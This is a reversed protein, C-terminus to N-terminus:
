DVLDQDLIDSQGLSMKSKKSAAVRTMIFYALGVFLAGAFLAIVTLILMDNLLEPALLAIIIGTIFAGGYYSLAPIIAWLWPLLGNEKAYKFFAFGGGIIIGIEIM